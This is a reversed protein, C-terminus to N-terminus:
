MGADRRCLRATPLARLRESDIEEGCEDCRGLSGDGARELADRVEHLRNVATALRQERDRARIVDSAQDVLDMTSMDVQEQELDAVEDELRRLDQQLEENVASLLRTRNSSTKPTMTSAKGM